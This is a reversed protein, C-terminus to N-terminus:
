IAQLKVISNYYRSRKKSGINKIRREIDNYEVRFASLTFDLLLIDGQVKSTRFPYPLEFHKTNNDVSFTFHLYFDKVSFLLLKGSRLIKNNHIIAIDKLLYSSLHGDHMEM